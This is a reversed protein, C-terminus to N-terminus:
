AVQDSGPNDSGPNRKPEVSGPRQRNQAEAQEIAERLHAALVRVNPELVMSDHDGPVEKVRVDECYRSWGNDEFIVERWQNALRGGSLEYEIPLKPRFLHLTGAFDSMKYKSLSARFAQEIAENHFRHNEVEALGGRKRRQELEWNIRNKAWDIFYGAGRRRIRQAHISLKDAATIPDRYPLPTDLLILAGVEQGEARLQRAMEFAAIGGGSFGGLLYPGQPQVTRLEALYDRAAEEFTAHPEMEGYLGRAQVGYFPRDTGVLNALHRLNLVNGFMGAVLFFPTRRKARESNSFHMPVLHTFRRAARRTSGSESKDQEGVSEAILAACARPTPAEFLVSMPYDVSYSKKIRAFLRVAILSHGGLEFFSDEAGAPQVGLLEEFFGAVTKEIAGEPEVYPALHTPRDFKAGGEAGIEAASRAAELTLSDLDISTVLARSGKREALLNAFAEAGEEPRIGMSLRAAFAADVQGRQEEHKDVELSEPSPAPQHAFDPLSDLRKITFGHARLLVEGKPNTLDVDFSAFDTGHRHDSSLRVWSNVERPLPGFVEVHGYRVPVWLGDEPRYGEILEMAYGTAIDLLGPHLGYGHLDKAFERPLELHALAEGEGLRVERLVNWRPGFVLHAEQAVQLAPGDPNASRVPAGLRTEIEAVDLRPSNPLSKLLLTATANREWGTSGDPLDRLTAVSFGYGASTEELTVRMRRSLNDPVYLGSFFILDEIAFGGHEGLEVLAARALELYGTGPLLAYGNLTRHEDLVWHKATDLVSEFQHVGSRRRRTHLLPHESPEPPLEDGPTPGAALRAAMGVETWMGWALSLEFRGEPKSRREVFADLFANAAVYDVQGALGLWASTSSFAVLFDLPQEGLAEELVLTGHLKPGLVEEIKDQRREVLPGDSLVGAAHLVGHLGGLDRRAEAIIETIRAVNTVDGARVHVTAGLAELRQVAAIRLSTPESKGHLRTWADWRDRPPLDTRSLLILNPQASEALREAISLAIGGLGGTILYTGGKRLIPLEAAVKPPATRREQRQEFWVGGRVAFTGTEPASRVFAGLTRAAQERQDSHERHRGFLSKKLHDLELDVTSCSMGALERPIVRVPGLVTAKVPDGIGEGKVNQSRNTAVLLRLGATADEAALAQALFVLSYFGSHLIRHLYSSGPRFSTDETVLWLHLISKPTRGHAVLERVLEDFGANGQEPPLSYHDEALRMFADGISVTTVVEGRERLEEVVSQGIGGEDMFVLWPGEPSSSSAPEQEVWKPAYYWRGTDEIREIAPTANAASDAAPQGPEIWYRQRQFPYTPLHVLRGGPGVLDTPTLDLGAAWLRGHAARMSLRDDLSDEPHRLSPIATSGSEALVAQQRALSSLTRGPGVELLVRGPEQCLCTIGDAFRVTGRLHRVWYAPDVAQEATLWEGTLNSVIPIQPASLQISRLYAGFEELIPELLRSHAAIDIAIRRADIDRKLLEAELRELAEEKGSAVCLEPANVTALDLDDGLLPQLEAASLPVSLMGGKEVREFLEGRLAVLGLADEYRFVGALHAATNEGLSHGILAVPEIGRRIWLNALATEIVFLAPLQLSPRELERTLRERDSDSPPFVLSALQVGNRKEFLGFGREVESRFEADHEFLDRAMDLHPAGGGPLLFVCGAPSQGAERPQFAVHSNVRRPDRSGLQEIADNRDAVAITRRHAFAQRGAALTHAVDLLELDPQEALRTSLNTCAEDLAARNRASLLLLQGHLELKSSPPEASTARAREPAQELIIHANTGGVGLSTVGARRPKDAPNWDSLKANVYFPSNAFDISPNPADFHLSPPLQGHHIALAVKILSAGGAATDLHGINGKVSGIGCFGTAQTDQRFAQTLGSIEIPDGIPTGTGHTEVYGISDASVEAVTLAESVCQTQGDVSPALYGAKSAGDNNVASGKIVAYIPDDAEIADELRKLVVAVTGSGFVTGESDRDFARVQGTPSLIEGQIFSYGQGHPLEITSGGALAVDCERAILSAAAQHVAVLSTSCATQVSVSPGSLNLCYSVRTALFDKDNGTHRLLFLGVDEVLERNSLLNFAFYAGMGCGAFVGISGDLKEPICGADELAEWSVELFHRHQPDMIAAEKPSLGFFEADFSEMDELLVGRKVYDPRRLTEEPVGAARLEEDTLDRISEVGARLNDWFAQPGQAGPLHCGIGCIAIELGSPEPESEKSM